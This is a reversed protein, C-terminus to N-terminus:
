RGKGLSSLLVIGVGAVLLLPLYSSLGPTCSGTQANYKGGAAVCQASTVTQGSIARIITPTNQALANLFGTAGTAAPAISVNPTSCKGGSWTGGAANCTVDSSFSCGAGNSAVSGGQAACQSALAAAYGPDGPILAGNPGSGGTIASPTGVCPVGYGDYGDAGCKNLDVGTTDPQSTVTQTTCDYSTATEPDYCTDGLGGLGMLPRRVMPVSMMMTVPNREGGVGPAGRM